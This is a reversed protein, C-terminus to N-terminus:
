KLKNKLEVVAMAASDIRESVTALVLGCCIISSLPSRIPPGIIWKGNLGDSSDTYFADFTPAEVSNFNDLVRGLCYPM